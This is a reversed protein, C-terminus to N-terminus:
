TKDPGRDLLAAPAVGFGMVIEAVRKIRSALDRFRHASVLGCDLLLVAVERIRMAIEPVRKRPKAIQIACGIRQLPCDSLAIGCGIRM